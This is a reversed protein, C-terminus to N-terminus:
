LRRGDDAMQSRRSLDCKGNSNSSPGLRHLQSASAEIPDFNRRANGECAIMTCDSTRSYNVVTISADTVELKSLAWEFCPGSAMNLPIAADLAIGRLAFDHSGVDFWVSPRETGKSSEVNWQIKPRFGPASRITLGSRNIQDFWLEITIDRDLRRSTQMANLKLSPKKSRVSSPVQILRSVIPSRRFMCSATTPRGQKPLDHKADNASPPTSRRGHLESPIGRSALDGPKLPIASPDADSDSRNSAAENGNTEELPPMGSRDATSMPLPITGQWRDMSQLWYTSLPAHSPSPVMANGNRHINAAHRDSPGDDDGDNPKPFIKSNPWFSCTM